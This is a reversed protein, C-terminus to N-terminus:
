KAKRCLMCVTAATVRHAAAVDRQLQHQVIVEHVIQIKEGLNLHRGGNTRRCPGLKPMDKHDHRAFCRQHDGRTAGRTLVKQIAEQVEPPM